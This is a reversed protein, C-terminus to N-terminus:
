VDDEILENTEIYIRGSSIPDIADIYQADDREIMFNADSYTRRFYVGNISIIETKIM